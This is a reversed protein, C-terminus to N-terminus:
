GRLQRWGPGLLKELRMRVAGPPRGEDRALQSLRAGAKWAKKLRADDEPEWPTFARPHVLRVRAIREARSEPRAEGKCELAALGEGAARAIDDPTIAPNAAMIDAPSNGEYLLYLIARSTEDTEM